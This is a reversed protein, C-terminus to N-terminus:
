VRRELEKILYELLGQAPYPHPLEGARQNILMCAVNAIRNAEAQFKRKDQETM